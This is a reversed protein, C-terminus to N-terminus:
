CFLDGHMIKAPGTGKECDSPVKMPAEDVTTGGGKDKVSVSADIGALMGWLEQFADDGRSFISMDACASKQKSYTACSRSRPM